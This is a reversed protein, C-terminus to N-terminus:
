PILNTVLENGGLTDQTAKLAQGDASENLVTAIKASWEESDIGDKMATAFWQGYFEKAGAEAEPDHKIIEPDHKLRKLLSEARTALQTDRGAKEKGKASPDASDFPLMWMYLYMKITMQIDTRNCLSLMRM